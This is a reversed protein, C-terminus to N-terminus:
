LFCHMLARWSSTQLQNYIKRHHDFDYMVQGDTLSPAAVTRVGILSVERPLAQAGGRFLSATGHGIFPM